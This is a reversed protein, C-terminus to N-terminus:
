IAAAVVLVLLAGTIYSRRDRIAFVVPDENLEGRGALIWLRSCWDLILPCIFWLL